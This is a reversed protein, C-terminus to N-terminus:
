EVTLAARESLKGPRLEAKASEDGRAYVDLFATSLRLFLTMADHDPKADVNKHILGGFQHDLGTISLLYHTGPVSSEPKLIENQYDAPRRGDGMLGVDDPGTVMFVPRSGGLWVEPPMLAMKGPDSLLITARYRKEAIARVTGDAPNRVKLGTMLMAPQTGVSHGASVLRTKDMGGKLGPIQAEIKALQDAIAVLDRGRSDIIELMHGESKPTERFNADRHDPLVVVYGHAAWHKSVADYKKGSSFTGHSLIIVPSPKGQPSYVVRLPLVRDKDVTISASDDIVVTDSGQTSSQGSLRASQEDAAAAANLPMLLALALWPRACSGAPPGHQQMAAGPMVKTCWWPRVAQNGAQATMDVSM